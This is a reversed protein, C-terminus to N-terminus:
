KESIAGLYPLTCWGCLKIDEGPTDGGGILAERKLLRRGEGENRFLIM